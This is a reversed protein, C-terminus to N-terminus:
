YVTSKRINTDIRSRFAEVGRLDAGAVNMDIRRINFNRHFVNSTQNTQFGRDIGALYFKSLDEGMKEIYQLPGREPLSGGFFGGVYDLADTISSVGAYIGAVIGNIFATAIDGGATAILPILDTFPQLLSRKLLEPISTLADWIDAVMSAISEPISTIIGIFDTTILDNITQVVGTILSVLSSFGNGIDMLILTVALAFVELVPKSIDFLWVFINGLNTVLAVLDKFLITLPKMIKETITRIGLFNTEWILALKAVVVGLSILFRVLPNFLTVLAGIVLIIASVVAVFQFGVIISSQLAPDLGEWIATLEQVLKTADQLIPVLADGFTRLFENARINLIEFQARLRPSAQILKILTLAAVAGFKAFNEKLVELQPGVKKAMTSFGKQFGGILKTAQQVGSAKLSVLLQGITANAVM